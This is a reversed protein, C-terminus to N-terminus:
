SDWIPPEMVFKRKSRWWTIYKVGNEKLTKALKKDTTVVIVEFSKATRSYNLICEDTRSCGSLEVVGIAIDQKGLRALALRAAAGRRGRSKALKNLEQVVNVLLSVRTDSCYNRLIGVAESVPDVGTAILLLASTDLVLECTRQASNTELLAGVM